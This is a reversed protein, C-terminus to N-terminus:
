SRPLPLDATRCARILAARFAANATGPGAPAACLERAASGCRYLDSGGIVTPASVDICGHGSTRQTSTFSILVAVVLATLLAGGLGVMWRERAGIRRPQAIQQWHGPPLPM